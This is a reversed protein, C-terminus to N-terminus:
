RLSSSLLDVVQRLSDDTNIAQTVKKHAHIVTGHDRGGFADGIEVLSCKTMRRSMYMAVQRPFAINAPRRRSTMDALRIDFHEAVKRQIADISVQRAAEERLIDKLLGEVRDLGVHEGSLSAFSAIRMLAGELRRVNRSIREALFTIIEEDIKVGWEDRKQHLIAIRTEMSPPSLEVTLGCEFRSVLRPELRSIECAPRDSTIVIHKQGDFLSNFTHFFEEQSRDKGGLFQVDDILLIEAKRYKARFKTLQGRQIADIFENTFTECTLYLISARDREGLIKNGIAQMLHTKGLGSGGHIFLPNYRVSPADAVALSAAHAFQSNPGVVFNNFQYTPNLGSKRDAKTPKATGNIQASPTPKPKVVEVAAEEEESPAEGNEDSVVIKLTRAGEFRESILEQLVPLYNTEIWLQHIENPAALTLSTDSLNCLVLGGFWRDFTDKSVKTKLTESLESWIHDLSTPMTTSIPFTTLILPSFAKVSFRREM